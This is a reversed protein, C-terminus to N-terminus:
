DYQKCVLANLTPIYCEKWCTLQLNSLGRYGIFIRTVNHLFNCVQLLDYVFKIVYLQILYVDGHTPNSSVVKTTIPVSQMPQQLDLSINNFTASFLM